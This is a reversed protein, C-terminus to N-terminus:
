AAAIRLKRFKAAQIVRAGTRRTAHIRTIGETARLYPNVLVSLALRDVIRYGSFDGFIIPEASAAVDDMDPLEIVPRGLITEPQGAQYSPQWLFNNQGDKLLRLAALTTGNMAWVGANRYTAPQAYMLRILADATVQTAHGSVTHAIGAHGLLMVACRQRLALGRLIGIFQRVKARDNENAPYVDALTDIVILAPMDHAARSELEKFLTTEMLAIQSDIALLADEGALSRLTLGEVDDYDRGEAALIDALRRHLEDDDDEASILLAPGQQVSKGIWSAGAVAAVALQLALLSKGTGGDGSFLTVTRQPVMGPVLWEREPVPKGKLSSASYFRSAREPEPRIVGSPAAAADSVTTHMPLGRVSLDDPPLHKLGYDDFWVSIGNFGVTKVTGIGAGILSNSIVKHGTKLPVGDRSLFGGQKGMDTTFANM